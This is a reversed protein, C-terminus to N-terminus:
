RSRQKPLTGELTEYQEGDLEIHDLNENRLILRLPINNGPGLQNMLWGLCASEEGVASEHCAMFNRVRFRCQIGETNVDCPQAITNILNKHAEATYGNPITHPDTSKKWPCKECQRTKKLLRSTDM